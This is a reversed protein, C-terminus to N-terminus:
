WVFFTGMSTCGFQALEDELCHIFAVEGRCPLRYWIGILVPGSDAHPIHWSREHIESYGVHVVQSAIDVLAFLAIGGGSRGDRRDLRSILIYGILILNIISANLFTEIIGVLVPLSLLEIHAELEVSHIILGQM